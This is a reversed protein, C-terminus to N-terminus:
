EKLRGRLPKRTYPLKSKITNNNTDTELSSVTNGLSDGSEMNPDSVDKVHNDNERKDHPQQPASNSATSPEPVAEQGLFANAITLSSFVMMMTIVIATKKCHMM